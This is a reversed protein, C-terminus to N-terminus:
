RAEEAPTVHTLAIGGPYGDVSVVPTDCIVWAPTRTVSARGEGDKFGPWFAVPTGIPHRANWAAAQEAPTM